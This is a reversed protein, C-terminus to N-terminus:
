APAIAYIKSGAGSLITDAKPMSTHQDLLGRGSHVGDDIVDM